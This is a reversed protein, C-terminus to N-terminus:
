RRGLKAIQTRLAPLVRKAFWPNKEMWLRSRWSPHPLPLLEPLYSEFARVTETLSDRQRERLYAAQAYQGILLTLEVRPMLALFKAHWAPACEVRPPLDGGARRGPWCFGMPLIAFTDSDFAARDVGLWERLHDGSADDWPVGSAHVKAGPAQGVLLVRAERHVKFVPRPGHPLHKACLTCDSADASLRTLSAAM